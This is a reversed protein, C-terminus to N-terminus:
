EKIHDISILKTGENADINVVAVVKEDFYNKVIDTLGDPVSITVKKNGELTIKVSGVTADAASLVGIYEERRAVQFDKNDEGKTKDIYEM